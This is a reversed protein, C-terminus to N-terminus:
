EDKREQPLTPSLLAIAQTKLGDNGLTMRGVLYLCEPVFAHFAFGPDLECISRANSIIDALKIMQVRADCGALRDSEARKRAKRNGYTLPIQDSLAIVLEAVAPGFAERVQEATVPTDEIVDHLHAAAVMVPDGGARRVIDAVEQTHVVYPEGTYKRKQEGHATIAFARAKEVLSV